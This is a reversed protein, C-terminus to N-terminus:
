LGEPLPPGPEGAGLTIPAGVRVRARLRQLAGSLNNEHALLAGLNGRAEALEPALTMARNLHELAPETQGQHFLLNGLNTHAVASDPDLALARDDDGLAELCVGLNNRARDNNPALALM